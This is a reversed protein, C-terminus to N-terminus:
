DYKPLSYTRFNDNKNTTIIGRAIDISILKSGDPLIQGLKAHSHINDLMFYAVAVNDSSSVGTFNLSSVAPQIQQQHLTKFLNGYSPQIDLDQIVPRDNLIFEHSPPEAAAHACVTAVLVLFAILKHM